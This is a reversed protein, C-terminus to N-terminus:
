DHCQEPYRRYYKQKGVETILALEEASLPAHDFTKIYEEMRWSKDSTTAIPGRFMQWSWALLVQSETMRKNRGIRELALDLPRAEVEYGVGPTESFPNYGEDPKVWIPTLASFPMLAINHAKCTSIIAQTRPDHACHPSLEIQNVAPVIKWSESLQELQKAGFNSVGIDKCLGESRLQEMIAWAETPTHPQTDAPDHILYLDVYEINMEKLAGLLAARPDNPVTKDLKGWKTTIYIDERKGGEWQALAEGVSLQNNYLEATDIHRFGAKLAALIHQACPKQWHRTATGFALAPVLTGSNLKVCPVASM